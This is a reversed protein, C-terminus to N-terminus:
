AMTRNSGTSTENSMSDIRWYQPEHESVVACDFTEAIAGLIHNDQGSHSLNSVHGGVNGGVWLVNRGDTLCRAIQRSRESDWVERIGFRELRGDFLDSMAIQKLPRFDTSV